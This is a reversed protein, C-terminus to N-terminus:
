KRIACLLREEGFFLLMHPRLRQELNSHGDFLKDDEIWSGMYMHCIRMGNVYQIKM